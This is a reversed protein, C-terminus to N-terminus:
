LYARAALESEREGMAPLLVIAGARHNGGVNPTSRCELLVLDGKSEDVDHLRGHNFFHHHLLLRTHSIM